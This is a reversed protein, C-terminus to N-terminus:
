RFHMGELYRLGLDTIQRPKVGTILKAHELEDLTDPMPVGSIHWGRGRTWKPDEGGTRCHLLRLTNHAAPSISPLGQRALYARGNQTLRYLNIGDGHGQAMMGEDVYPKMDEAALGSLWWAGTQYGVDGRAKEGMKQFIAADFKSVHEEQPDDHVGSLVGLAGALLDTGADLLKTAGQLAANSLGKIEAKFEAATFGGLAPAGYNKVGDRFGLEYGYNAAEEEPSMREGRQAKAIATSVFDDTLITM